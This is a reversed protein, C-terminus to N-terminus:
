WTSLNQRLQGLPDPEGVPFHAGLSRANDAALTLRRPQLQHKGLALLALNAPHEGLEAV